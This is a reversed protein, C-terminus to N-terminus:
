EGRLAAVLPAKLTARVALLGTAFGTVLVSLLMLALQTWPIDTGTTIGYPLVAVLAAVAGVALGTILLVLNERLVMSALQSRTFGAARM